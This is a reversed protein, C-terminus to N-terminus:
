AEGGDQVRRRACEANLVAALVAAQVEEIDPRADIVAWREPERVVMELYGARVREHYDIEKQEMRNWGDGDAGVKRGLGAQVPVDLYISLDPVLHETAFDTITRLVELEREHGYGQYALSSDAFRDCLVVGGRALHPGIVEAVHQARAASFLLFETTPVMETHRPDLLIARVRDGIATGGPERTTLVDLGKRRLEAALLALQTTKGSGEPGEFTIFM